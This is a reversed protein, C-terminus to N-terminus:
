NKYKYLIYGSVQVAGGLVLNVSEGIGTDFHGGSWQPTILGGNAGCPMAGTLDSGATGSKFKVTVASACIICYGVVVISVGPIAAVIENNGSSSVSIVARDYETRM